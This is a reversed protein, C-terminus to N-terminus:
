AIVEVEYSSKNELPNGATDLKQKRHLYVQHFYDKHTQYYYKSYEKKNRWEKTLYSTHKKQHCNACLTIGNDIDFKLEPYNVFSKIHHPHLYNGKQGCEQCTYNDREFVQQRWIRFASSSRLLKNLPTVGGKWLNTKNGRRGLSMNLRSQLTEPRGKHWESIKRRTEESFRKNKGIRRLKEKTAESVIKGKSGESIAKNRKKLLEPSLTHGKKYETAPSSHQGKHTESMHKRYEPNQWLSITKERMKQKSKETHPTNHM